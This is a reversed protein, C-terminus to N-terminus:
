NCSSFALVPVPFALYYSLNDKLFSLFIMSRTFSRCAITCKKWLRLLKQFFIITINLQKMRAKLRCCCNRLVATWKEFLCSSVRNLLGEKTPLTYMAMLAAKQIIWPHFKGLTSSYSKQCISSLKHDMEVDYVEELFLAIFVIFLM